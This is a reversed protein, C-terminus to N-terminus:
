VPTVNGAHGAGDVLCEDRSPSPEDGLRVLVVHCDRCEPCSDIMPCDALNASILAKGLNQLPEAWLTLAEAGGTQAEWDSWRAELVRTFRGTASIDTSRRM